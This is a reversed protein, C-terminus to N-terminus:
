GKPPANRRFKQTLEIAEAIIADMIVLVMEKEAKSLKAYRLPGQSEPADESMRMKRYFTPVSWNCDHCLRERFVLPLNALFVHLDRLFIPNEEPSIITMM